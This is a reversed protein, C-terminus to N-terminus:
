PAVRPAIKVRAEIMLRLPELDVIRAAWLVEDLDIVHLQLGLDPHLVMTMHYAQMEDLTIHQGLALREAIRIRKLTISQEAQDGLETALEQQAHVLARAGELASERLSALSSQFFGRRSSTVAGDDDAM